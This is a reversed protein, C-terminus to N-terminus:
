RGPGILATDAAPRPQRRRRGWLAFAALVLVVGVAQPRLWALWIGGLTLCALEPREALWDAFREWRERRQLLWACSFIAVLGASWAWVRRDSHKRWRLQSASGESVAFRADSDALSDWNDARLPHDAATRDGPLESEVAILEHVRNWRERLLEYESHQEPTCAASRLRQELRGNTRRLSQLLPSDLAFTRTSQREAATLLASM